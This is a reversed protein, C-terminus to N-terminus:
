TTPEEPEVDISDPLLPYRSIRGTDEAVEYWWVHGTVTKAQGYFPSGFLTFLKPQKMM